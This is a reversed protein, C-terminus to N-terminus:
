NVVLQYLQVFKLANFYNITRLNKKEAVMTWRAKGDVRGKIPFEIKERILYHLGIASPDGETPIKQLLRLLLITQHKAPDRPTSNRQNDKQLFPEQHGWHM